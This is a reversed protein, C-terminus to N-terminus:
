GWENESFQKLKKFLHPVDLDYMLFNMDKKDTPIGVKYKEIYKESIRNGSVKSKIQISPLRYFARLMNAYAEETEGECFVFLTPNIKKRRPPNRKSAM